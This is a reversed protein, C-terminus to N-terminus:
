IDKRSRRYIIVCLVVLAMAGCAVRILTTNDM